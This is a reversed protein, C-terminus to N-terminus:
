KRNNWFELAEEKSSFDNYRDGYENPNQDKGITLNCDECEIYYDTETEKPKGVPYFIRNSEVIPDKKSGCFPCPKIDEMKLYNLNFM